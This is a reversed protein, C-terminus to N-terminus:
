SKGRPWSGLGSGETGPLKHSQEEASALMRLHGASLLPGGTQAHVVGEGSGPDAEALRLLVAERGGVQGRLVVEAGLPLPFTWDQGRRREVLLFPRVSTRAFDDVAAPDLNPIRRDAYYVYDVRWDWFGASALEGDSRDVIDALRSSFVRASKLENMAPLAWASAVGFIVVMSGGLAIPSWRFRDSRLVSALLLAGAVFLTAGAARGPGQLPQPVDLFGGLLASGGILAITGFLGFAAIAARRSWRGVQADNMWLAVYSGVLAAVAPAIPLIYPARKSESFSFFLLISLIWIWALASLSDDTASSSRWRNLAVAPLLWSWPAYDIWIYKLYYWWPQHHDWANLFRTVNQRYLVEILLDQHGTAWLSIYWPSAVVLGTVMGALLWRSLLERFTGQVLAYLAVILGPIVLAVPGKAVFGLGLAIGALPWAKAPHLGFDLMRLLPIVAALTFVMVLIDMQITRSAWFVQYQTALIAGALLASRRGSYPAVLLATLLVSAIGAIAAPVRLSTEDVGGLVKGSALALWYYLIPKEAFVQGNVTPILWSGSAAMEAVAQGYIPENPDWLDRTGLYPLFLLSAFAALAGLDRLRLGSSHSTFAM